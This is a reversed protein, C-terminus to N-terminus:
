GSRSRSARGAVRPSHPSVTAAIPVHRRAAVGQISRQRLGEVEKLDKATAVKVNERKLAKTGQRKDRSVVIKEPKAKTKRIGPGPGILVELPISMQEHIKRIMPLTLARRGSLVETVREKSGILPVLDKRTWGLDEMRVLIAQILDPPAIPFHKREYAEVLTVLADLEAAEPTGQAADWLAEIRELAKKHSIEDVIPEIM